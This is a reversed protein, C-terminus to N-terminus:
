RQPIPAPPRLSSSSGPAATAATRKPGHPKGKSNGRSKGKTGEDVSELYSALEWASTSNSAYHKQLYLYLTVRFRGKTLGRASRHCAACTDAFLKPGSKGEDLNEARAAAMTLLAAAGLVLWARGRVNARMNGRLNWGGAGSIAALRTLTAAAGACRSQCHGRRHRLNEAPPYSGSSASGKPCPSRISGSWAEKARAFADAVCAGPM